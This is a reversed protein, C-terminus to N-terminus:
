YCVSLRWLLEISPVKCSAKFPGQSGQSLCGAHCCNLCTVLTWCHSRMVVSSHTIIWNCGNCMSESKAIQIPEYFRLITTKFAVYLSSSPSLLQVRLWRRHHRSFGKTQRVRDDSFPKILVCIPVDHCTFAIVGVRDCHHVILIAFSPSLLPGQFIDDLM